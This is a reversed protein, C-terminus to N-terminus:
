EEDIEEKLKLGLYYTKGHSEKSNIGFAKIRRTIHKNTTKDDKRKYIQLWEIYMKVFENNVFKETKVFSVIDFRDKIFDEL